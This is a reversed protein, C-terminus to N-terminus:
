ATPEDSPQFVHRVARQLARQEASRDARRLSTYRDLEREGVATCLRGSLRARARSSTRKISSCTWVLKRPHLVPDAVALDALAV